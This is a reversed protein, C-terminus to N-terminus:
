KERASKILHERNTIIQEMMAIAEADDRKFRKRAAEGQIGLMAGLTNFDGVQIKKELEEKTM